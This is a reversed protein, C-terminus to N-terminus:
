GDGPELVGAPRFATLGNGAGAGLAMRQAEEIALGRVPDAEWGKAVERYAFEQSRIAQTDASREQAYRPDPMQRLGLPGVSVAWRAVAEHVEAVAAVFRPFSVSPERLDIMTIKEACIRHAAMFLPAPGQRLREVAAYVEGASPPFAGTARRLATTAEELSVGRELLEGVYAEIAERGWAAVLAPWSGILVRMLRQQESM